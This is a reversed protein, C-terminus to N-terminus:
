KAEKLFMVRQKICDSDPFSMKNSESFFPKTQTAPYSQM